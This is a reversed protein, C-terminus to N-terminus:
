CLFEYHKRIYWLNNWKSQNGKMIQFLTNTKKTIYIYTLKRFLLVKFLEALYSV